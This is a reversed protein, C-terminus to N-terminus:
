FTFTAVPGFAFSRNLTRTIEPEGYTATVAIGLNPHFFFLGTASVSWAASEYNRRADIKLSLFKRYDMYLELGGSEDNKRTKTITDFTYAAGVGTSYWSDILRRPNDPVFLTHTDVAGMTASVQIAYSNSAFQWYPGIYWNQIPLKIRLGTRGQHSRYGDKAQIRAFSEYIDAGPVYGIVNRADYRARFAGFTYRLYPTFITSNRYQYEGQAYWTEGSAGGEVTNLPVPDDRLPNFNVDIRAYAAAFTWANDTLVFQAVKQPGRGRAQLDLSGYQTLGLSRGIAPLVRQGTRPDTYTFPLATKLDLVMEGYAAGVVIRWPNERSESEGDAAQAGESEAPTGGAGLADTDPAAFLPAGSFALCLACVVAFIWKSNNNGTM